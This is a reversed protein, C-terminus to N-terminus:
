IPLKLSVYDADTNAAWLTPDVTVVSTSAPLVTPEAGQQVPAQGYILTGALASGLTLLLGAGVAIRTKM